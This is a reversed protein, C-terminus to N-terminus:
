LGFQKKVGEVKKPDAIFNGADKLFKKFEADSMADLKKVTSQYDSESIKNMSKLLTLTEKLQAKSLSDVAMDLAFVKFSILTAVLAIVLKSIM